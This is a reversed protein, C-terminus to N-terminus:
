DGQTFGGTHGTAAHIARPVLQMTVGDQHHHWTYGEPTRPLGAAENAAKFDGARSGTPSIKVEATTVSSFDPYGNNDFPIGTVPHKGGALHGNRPALSMPASGDEIGPASACCSRNEGPASMPGDTQSPADIRSMPGPSPENISGSQAGPAEKREGGFGLFTGHQADYEGARFLSYWFYLVWVWGPGKPPGGPGAGPGVGTPPGVPPEPPVIQITHRGDPDRLIVPNNQAYTYLGLNEPSAGSGSPGRRIYSALIPDPNSWMSYKPNYYRAGFYYLGTEDLEKANFLWPQANRTDNNKQEGFWVEGTPFYEDHQLISGDAGTTYHTSQLHDPHYYFLTSAGATHPDSRTSITAVASAIRQDGMMIHKTETLSNKVVYFPNVYWTELTTRRKHSRTGSADYLYTNTFGSDIETRLRDDETWTFTRSPGFTGSSALTNGDPDYTLTNPGIATPAHPRPGGYTYGNNYTTAQQTTLNGSDEPTEIADNQTKHTINGLGDYQMTLTYKRDNNCGCACGVYLGTANTIQYLDDYTYNYFALGPAITTNPAPPNPVAGPQNLVSAINGVLDYIYTIEQMTVAAGPSTTLLTKLRKTEGFYGYESFVGNGFTISLRQSLQNYNVGTVYQTTTGNRVGTVSSVLGGADYGYSVVEGDPYTMSLARGLTDYAYDMKYTVGPISPSQTQPTKEMHSVNGLSDYQRTEMGSEDQVQSIRAAQGNPAGSAGYFYTVLGTAGPFSGTGTAPPYVVTKLRNVDYTYKVLLSKSRLVATEKAGLRGATDFRWETQGADLSVLKVMHGISDYSSSTVNGSADTVQLLESLPDYAYRTTLVTATGNPFATGVRNTEQVALVEGRPSRYETRVKGQPDKTIRDLQMLGDLPAAAYSILSTVAPNGQPDTSTGNDDPTTVARVRDLVDYAYSKAPRSPAIQTQTTEQSTADTEFIPFGEEFPRGVTDFDLRGSVIRGAIGGVAASKKIQRARNLGDKFTVTDLTAGPRALDKHKARAWLVPGEPNFPNPVVAYDIAVTPLTPTACAFGGQSAPVVDVPACVRMVRGFDDYEIHETQGNVDTTDQVEGFRLDYTRSSTYSFSDSIGTVHTNTTSDYTYSLQYGTPDTAKQVNGFNDYSFASSLGANNGATYTQGTAPDKGGFLIDTVSQTEGHPGYVATRERLLGGAGTAQVDNPRPLTAGTPQGNLDLIPDAVAQYGITYHLDDTTVADDGSDSFKTRNGQGDYDYGLTTSKLPANEDNTQGEYFFTQESILAPFVVGPAGTVTRPDYTRVTKKFLSPAQPAVGRDRVTESLLLHRREYTSNDFVRDTQQTDSTRTATIHSFGLFERDARSYFGSPVHTGPVSYDIATVMQPDMGSLDSGSQYGSDVAVLNLVMQHEPMDVNVSHGSSDTATGVVHGVRDYSMFIDAGLPTRIETLLNVGKTNLTFRDLGQVGVDSAPNRRVYVSSNGAMKLVMDPAGDGDIDEFRMQSGTTNKGAGAGVEFGYCGAIVTEFYAAYGASLSLGLSETFGLADNSGLGATDGQETPFGWSPVGWSTGGAFGDGTNFWIQMSSQGHPRQVIDPLGDGNVDVMDVITRSVSATRNGGYYSFGVGINNMANDQKQLALPFTAVRPNVDSSSFTVPLGAGSMAPATSLAGFTDSGAVTGGFTVPATFDYGVNIRVTLTGTQPDRTVYDPLGDGNIDLLEATTSVDGYGIGLSPLFSTWKPPKEGGYALSLPTAIGMSASVSETQSDRLDGCLPQGLSAGCSATTAPLPSSFKQIAGFAGSANSQGPNSVSNFYVGANTVLDPYRDGNMDVLQTQTVSSGLSGSVGFLFGVGAGNTDNATQSFVIGGGDTHVRGLRSPKLTGAAVYDDVGGGRWMPGPIPPPTNNPGAPMGAPAEAMYVAPPPTGNQNNQSTRLQSQATSDFNSDPATNSGNWEFFSWSHFFGGGTADPGTNNVPPQYNRRATIQQAPGGNFQLHTKWIDADLFGNTGPTETRFLDFIISDGAELQTSFPPNPVTASALSSTDILVQSQLQIQQQPSIRRVMLRAGNGFYGDGPTNASITVTGASTATFGIATGPTVFQTWPAQEYYPAPTQFIINASVPNSVPDPDNQLQCSGGGVSSVCNTPVGCFSSAQSLAQQQAPSGPPDSTDQQISDLRCYNTYTVQPSWQIQNPDVPTPSSVQFVIRDGPAVIQPLTIPLRGDFDAALQTPGFIPTNPLKVIEITVADPTRHKVVDGTIQVSPPSSGSAAQATDARWLAVPRGALRFDSSQDFDFAGGRFPETVNHQDASVSQCNTGSADCVDQYAINPDWALTDNEIDDNSDARFYVRDGQAVFLKQGAGCGTTAPLAPACPTTNNFTDSWINRQQGTSSFVQVKITVGDDTQNTSPVKTAAGSILVHGTYPATWQMVPDTLTFKSKEENIIAQPMIGSLSPASWSAGGSSPFGSGHNLLFGRDTTLLDVFGDGDIDSLTVDQSSSAWTHDGSLHASEALEHAGASFTLAFNSSHGLWDPSSPLSIAGTASVFNQAPTGNNLLANGGNLWVAPSGEVIGGSQFNAGKGIFDPLGDGNIDVFEGITRDQNDHPFTDPIPLPIDLTTSGGAAVHFLECGGPGAGVMFSGNLSEGSTSSAGQNADVNGWVTPAEFALGSPNSHTSYGFTYHYFEEYNGGTDPDNTNEGKAVRLQRIRSKGFDGTEYIFNYRRIANKPTTNFTPNTTLSLDFVRINVLRHATLAIIGGRANSFPDPRPTHDNTDFTTPVANGDDMEFTIRYNANQQSSDATYDIEAPYLEVDLLGSTNNHFITTRKDYRYLIQNGFADEVRDLYWRAVGGVGFISVRADPNEGYFYHVGRKDVVEWSYAILGPQAETESPGPGTRIITDFKGESRRHFTTRSSRTHNPDPDMVLLEGDLTYTETEISPDYKPVGFRTDVQVSSIPVDWGVGVIGNGSDSSYTLSLQPQMGQRGPPVWLPYSVHAAGDPSPEPPAILDINAAPDGLKMDKISTPNFSDATPHDPSSITAAIFDTFHTTGATLTGHHADGHTTQVQAWRKADTDFFFVGMDDEAQGGVFRDRDYPISLAIPKQFKLGHPGLRYAHGGATVNTLTEDTAPIEIDSLPRVTIRTDEALAGAPIDLKVGAFALTSAEGARVVKGYPAGPDEVPRGATSQPEEAPHCGEIDVANAVTEGNALKAEIEVQWRGGSRLLSPPAPVTAAFSGDAAIPTSQVAGDIRVGTGERPGRLFGRVYATGDTCERHLPYSVVLHPVRVPRPSGVVRVESIKGGPAAERPAAIALRVGQANAITQDLPVRAWGAKVGALNMVVPDGHPKGGVMATATITGKAGEEVALLLSEPQTEGAFRLDVIKSGRGLEKAGVGTTRDGDVLAAAVASGAGPPLYAVGDPVAPIGVIRLNRVRYGAPDNQNAVLFQIDNVGARLWGPQIEEVQLGGRGGRTAEFGGQAIQGNVRRVAASWHSLGELEYVLFARAFTRGDRDLKAYFSAAGNPGLVPASVTRSAPESAVQVAGAPVRTFLAEGPDSMAEPARPTTRGWLEIERLSAREGPPPAISVVVSRAEVGEKAMFRNWRPPLDVLPVRELGPIPAATKNAGPYVGIVANADGYVGVGEFTTGPPLTVNVRTPGDVELPVSADGDFL